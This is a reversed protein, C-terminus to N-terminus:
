VKMQKLKRLATLYPSDIIIHTCGAKPLKEHDDWYDSIKEELRKIDKNEDNKLIIGSFKDEEDNSIQVKWLMLDDADIESFIINNKKKVEEFIKKKLSYVTKGADVDIDFKESNTEVERFLRCTLTVMIRYLNGM